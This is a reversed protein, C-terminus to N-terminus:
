GRKRALEVLACIAEVVEDITMDSTDIITADDAARLPAVDRNSDYSDRQKLAELIEAEPILALAPDSKAREQNQLFRRRARAEPTATVFVKVEADPFVVTGMDRGEAVTDQTHAIARQHSAMAERVAPVASVQSVCADVEPTRIAETVDTHGMIVRPEGDPVPVFSLVYTNAIHGLARDNDLAIKDALAQYTIARYMAGTDLFTFGLKKAVIRAVTSKGSGAPGDIAIIM